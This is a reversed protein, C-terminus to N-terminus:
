AQSKRLRGRLWLLYVGALGGALGFWTIAYQLHNNRLKVVLPGTHPANALQPTEQEVFFRAVEGWGKAAAIAVPERRYWLNNQPEDAPTFMTSEDPWRVAGTLEVEGAPPPTLESKNAIFGRNVVVTKGDQTRLPSMVWYGPGLVDPRLASGATYVLANQGSAFVGRLRVRSFEDAGQNPSPPLDHPPASVRANLTDILNEKWAKRELQWVGLSILIAFGIIAFVTATVVSRNV